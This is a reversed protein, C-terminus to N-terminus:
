DECEFAGNRARRVFETRNAGIVGCPPAIAENKM